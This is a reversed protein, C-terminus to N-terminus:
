LRNKQGRDFYTTVIRKPTTTYNYVVRLVRQEYEPIRKLVHLLLPDHKDIETREPAALTTKIWEVSLEREAIVTLAHNTFLYSEENVIISDMM